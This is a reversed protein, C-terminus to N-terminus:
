NLQWGADKLKKVVFEPSEWVDIYPVGEVFQRKEEAKLDKPVRGILAIRSGKHKGEYCELEIEHVYTVADIHLHVTKSWFHELKIGNKYMPSLTLEIVKGDAPEENPKPARFFLHDNNKDIGSVDVDEYYNNIYLYNGYSELLYKDVNEIM